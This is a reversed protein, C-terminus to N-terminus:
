ITKKITKALEGCGILTRNKKRNVIGVKLSPNSLRPLILDRLKASNRNPFWNLYEGPLREDKRKFSGILLPGEIGSYLYTEGPKDHTEVFCVNPCPELLAKKFSITYRASPKNKPEVIIYKMDRDPKSIDDDLVIDACWYLYQMYHVFHSYHGSPVTRLVIEQTM